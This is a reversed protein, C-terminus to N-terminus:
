DVRDCRDTGLLLSVCSITTTFHSASLSLQLKSAPVGLDRAQQRFATAAAVGPRTLIASCLTYDHALEHKDLDSIPRFPVKFYAAERWPPRTSFSRQLTNFRPLPPAFAVFPSIHVINPGAIGDSGNCERDSPEHAATSGRRGEWARAVM